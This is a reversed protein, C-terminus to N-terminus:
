SHARLLVGSLTPLGYQTGIFMSSTDYTGTKVYVDDGAVLQLLFVESNCNTYSNDGALLTGQKTQNVFLDLIVVNAANACAYLSFQYTGNVPAVFVGHNPNYGNGINFVVDDYHVYRSVGNVASTLKSFFAVERDSVFLCAYMPISTDVWMQFFCEVNVFYPMHSLM